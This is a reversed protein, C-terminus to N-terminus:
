PSCHCWQHSHHPTPSQRKISTPPIRTWTAMNKRSTAKWGRRMATLRPNSKLELLNDVDKGNITKSKEPKIATKRNKQIKRNSMQPRTNSMQPRNRSMQPRKKQCKLVSIHKLGKHSYPQPCRCYICYYCYIYM